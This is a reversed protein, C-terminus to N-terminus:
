IRAVLFAAIVIVHHFLLEIIRVSRENILLDMLDEALYGFSM